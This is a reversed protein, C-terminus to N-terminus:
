KFCSPWKQFGIQCFLFRMLGDISLLERICSLKPGVSDHFPKKGAGFLLLRDGFAKL